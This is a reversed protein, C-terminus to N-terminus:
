YSAFVTACAVDVLYNGTSSINWVAGLFGNRIVQNILAETKLDMSSSAEDLILLVSRRLM